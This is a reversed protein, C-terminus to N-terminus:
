HRWGLRCEALCTARRGARDIGRGIYFMILDEQVLRLVRGINDSSVGIEVLTLLLGNPTTCRAAGSRCHCGSVLVYEVCSLAVKHRAQEGAQDSTGDMDVGSGLVMRRTVLELSSEAYPLWQGPGDCHKGTWLVVM